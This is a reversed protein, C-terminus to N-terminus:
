WEVCDVAHKPAKPPSIAWFRARMCWERAFLFFCPTCSGVQNNLNDEENIPDDGDSSWAQIEPTHGRLTLLAAANAGRGNPYSSASFVTWQERGLPLAAYEAGAPVMQAM